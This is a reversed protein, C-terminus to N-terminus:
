LTRLWALTAQEAARRDDGSSFTHDASPLRRTTVNPRDLIGRWRRSTASVEEFEAATMDNGSLLFLASGEFRDLAASMRAGLPQRASAPSGADTEGSTERGFKGRVYGGLNRGLAGFSAKWDFDGRLVKSWLEPSFLREGYYTKVYASALGEESRVWPNVLVLGRVRADRHAYFSAATAGDCLGWLVFRDIGARAAFADLASEVDADLTEFSEFKGDSDGMGRCDFRMAPIGNEALYRGLLVFQRHSGVRYQPGGVVILVGTDALEGAEHLIGVLSSAQCQFSFASERGM